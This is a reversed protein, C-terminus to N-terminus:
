PEFEQLAEGRFLFGSANEELQRTISAISALASRLDVLAPELQGLSGLGQDLNTQNRELLQDLRESSQKLNVLTERAIPLLGTQEQHLALNTAQALQAIERIAVSGQASLQPLQGATQELHLLLQRVSAVNEPSLLQELRLLLDNLGEVLGEGSELVAAISSPEAKIFAPQAPTGVLEPSDPAGGSLQIKMAGSINALALDARTDVKIPTDRNVRILARVRRPDDPDLSLDVVDGVLIGSYEVRAGVSLGSVPRAFGIIYYSYDREATPQWLWLMFLLAAAVSIVVFSGVIIHRARTEM